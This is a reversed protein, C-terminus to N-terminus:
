FALRFGAYLVQVDRSGGAVAADPSNDESLDNYSAIADLGPAINYALGLGWVSQDRKGIGAPNTDQEGNGYYGGFSFAGM